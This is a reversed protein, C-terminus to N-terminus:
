ICRCLYSIPMDNIKWLCAMKVRCSNHLFCKLIRQCLVKWLCCSRLDYSFCQSVSLCHFTICVKFYVFKLLHLVFDCKKVVFMLICLESLVQWFISFVCFVLYHRDSTVVFKFVLKDCLVLINLDCDINFM